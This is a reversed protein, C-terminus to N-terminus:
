SAGAAARPARGALRGAAAVAAGAEAVGVCGAAACDHHVADQYGMDILEKLQPYRFDLLGAGGEVDIAPRYVHVALHRYERAGRAREYFRQALRVFGRAAPTDAAAPDGALLERAANIAAITALDQRVNAAWIIAFMRYFTDVSSPVAPLKINRVQPDVFVVHLVSAGYNIAPQFPTNLVVGGDVYPVGDIIVAPFIGPLAASALIGRTGVREALLRNDYLQLTGWLWNTAAITLRKGSALLGGLDVTDDVLERLPSESIFADLDFLDLLRSQLSYDSLVFQAGKRLGFSSLDVLDAGFELLSRVPRALCGPDLFQFPAGRVRFVGNGCSSLSNAIRDLWISELEEAVAAAARGPRSSMVAANYSGVSTGTYIGPDIPRYGTAPSGGHVLAKLVGVEYAGYAGGGSLVVAVDADGSV